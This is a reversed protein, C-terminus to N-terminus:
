EEAGPESEYHPIPQFGGGHLPADGGFCTLDFTEKETASVNQRLQLNLM